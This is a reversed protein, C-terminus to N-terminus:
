APPSPLSWFLVVSFDHPLLSLCAASALLGTNFGPETVEQSPSQSWIM